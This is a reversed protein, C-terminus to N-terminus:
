SLILNISQANENNMERLRRLRDKVYRINGENLSMEIDDIVHGMERILVDVNELEGRVGIYFKTVMISEEM